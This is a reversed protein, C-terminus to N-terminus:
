TRRTKLGHKERASEKKEVNKDEKVPVDAISLQDAESVGAARVLDPDAEEEQIGLVGEGETLQVCDVRQKLLVADEPQHPEPDSVRRPAGAAPADETEEDQSCLCRETVSKCVACFTPTTKCERAYHGQVGCKHCMFDPCERVIHGPQLCLRCVKVQKDHLVRFFEPGSATQFRASYPLSQVTDSFKVKVFRTGDAVSTGPWMRRMIPSVAFVGWGRLKELIESDYIYAPLSLFSVMLENNTLSTGLVKTNKIKFGDLLRDRGVVNSLTVEFRNEGVARCAVVGGCLLKCYKILEVVSVHDDGVLEVQVTLDKEYKVRVPSVSEAARVAEGGSEGGRTGAVAAGGASFEKGVGGAGSRVFAGSASAMTFLFFFGQCKGIKQGNTVGDGGLRPPRSM